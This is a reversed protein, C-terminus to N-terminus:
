QGPDVTCVLSNIRKYDTSIRKMSTKSFGLIDADLRIANSEEVAGKKPLYGKCKIIYKNVM